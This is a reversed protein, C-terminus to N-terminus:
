GQKFTISAGSSTPTCVNAYKSIDTITILNSLTASGPNSSATILFPMRTSFSLSSNDGGYLTKSAEKDDADRYSVKISTSSGNSVIVNCAPILTADSPVGGSGEIFIPM